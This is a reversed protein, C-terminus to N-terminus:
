RRRFLWLAALVGVITAGVPALADDDSADGGADDSADGPTSEAPEEDGADESDSTEAEADGNESPTATDPDAFADPDFAPSVTDGGGDIVVEAPSLSLPQPWETTLMVDTPDDDTGAVSMEAVAPDADEAVEVTLTAFAAEGVVGSRDLVSQELKVAGHADDYAVEESPDLDQGDAALEHFWDNGEIETVTLYEAPYDVRLSVSEVGVDGHGGDTNIVVDIEVEEGPDVELEDPEFDILAVNDGATATGARGVVGVGVVLALAALLAIVLRGRSADQENPLGIM